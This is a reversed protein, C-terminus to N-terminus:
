AMARRQGVVAGLDITRIPRRGWDSEVCYEMLKDFYRDVDPTVLGSGALDRETNTTDFEAQYNVYPTFVNVTKIAKKRTGWLMRSVIPVTVQSLQHPMFIPPRVKFFGAADETLKGLTTNAEPGAAIHYCGGRTRPKAALAEIADAVYDVPVTDIVAGRSAPVLLLLKKSFLKLVIYAGTFSSAYGTRSNGVIISPRFITTPLTKQAEIVALEPDLTGAPAAALIQRLREQSDAEDTGRILCVIQEDEPCSGALRYLLERGLFGTSGTLVTAPKDRLKQSNFRYVDRMHKM